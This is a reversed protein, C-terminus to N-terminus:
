VKIQQLKALGARVSEVEARRQKDEKVADKIASAVESLAQNAERVKARAIDYATIVRDLASPQTQKNQEPKPM